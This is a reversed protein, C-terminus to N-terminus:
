ATSIGIISALLPRRSEMERQVLVVWGREKQANSFALLCPLYLCAVPLAVM